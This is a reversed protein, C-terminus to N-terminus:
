SNEEMDRIKRRVKLYERGLLFLGLVPVSGCLVYAPLMKRVGGTEAHSPNEPDYYIWVKSLDKTEKRSGTEDVTYTGREAKFTYIYRYYAGGEDDREAQVKVSTPHTSATYTKIRVIGFAFGAILIAVIFVVILLVLLQKRSQRKLAQIQYQDDM